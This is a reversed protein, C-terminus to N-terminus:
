KVRKGGVSYRVGDRLVLMCSWLEGEWCSMAGGNQVCKQFEGCRYM